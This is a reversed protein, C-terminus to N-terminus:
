HRTADTLRWTTGKPAPPFPEGKTVTAQKRTRSNRYQGSRPCRQGPKYPTAKM